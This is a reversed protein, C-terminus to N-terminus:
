QITDQQNEIDKDAMAKLFGHTYEINIDEKIFGNLYRISLKGQKVDRDNKLKSIYQDKTATTSIKVFKTNASDNGIVGSFDIPHINLIYNALPGNVDFYISPNISSDQRIVEIKVPNKIFQVEYQKPIVTYYGDAYGDTGLDYHIKVSIIKSADAVSANASVTESDNFWSYTKSIGSTLINVLLAAVLIITVNFIFKKVRSKVKM